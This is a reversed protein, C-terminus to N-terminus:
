GGISATVEVSAPPESLSRWRDGQRTRITLGAIVRAISAAIVGAIL